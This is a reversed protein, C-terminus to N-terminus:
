ELPNVAKTYFAQTFKKYERLSMKKFASPDIGAVRAVLADEAEQTAGPKFMNRYEEVTIKELDFTIETGDKLVFDSQSAVEKETEKARKESM